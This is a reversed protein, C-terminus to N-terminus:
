RRSRVRAHAARARLDKRLSRASRAREDTCRGSQEARTSRARRGRAGARGGRLGSRSTPRPSGAARTTARSWARAARARGILPEVCSPRRRTSTRARSTSCCCSPTTCCRAASRSRAPGHRPLAHPGTTPARADPGVRELLEDIRARRCATCARTSACTRARADPRPLAAARPRPLRRARAGGLGRAAADHGLVRATGAHPRLLTPSCACCRRSAPATPASSSSRRARRSADLTVDALAAREGYRRSSRRRARHSTDGRDGAALRAAHGCRRARHVPFLQEIAKPSGPFNVILTSAARHRPRRPHPHGHPTHRLAEARMAEAFGPADREIVARTAEPTVDDPTLGTGGTTFVFDCATTSTTACATRSAARLRRARGGDRRGRRRGGRGARRAAPRVRGRGRRPSCALRRAGHRM